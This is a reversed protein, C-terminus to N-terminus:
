SDDKAQELEHGHTHGNGWSPHTSAEWERLCSGASIFPLTLLLGFHPQYTGRRSTRQSCQNQCWDHWTEHQWEREGWKMPTSERMVPGMGLFLHIGKDALGLSTGLTLHLAEM